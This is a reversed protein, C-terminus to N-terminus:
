NWFDPEGTQGGRLRCDTCLPTSGFWNGFEDPMTPIYGLSGFYTAVSDGPVFVSSCIWEYEWNPVHRELIFIRKESTTSAGLYGVVPESTTECYINGHLQGPLPDTFGGVESTNKQMLQLYEFELKTLARQKVLVSYRESLKEDSVPILILPRMVIKDDVFATTSEFILGAPYQYKWCRYMDMAEQLPRPQVRNDSYFYYTPYGSTIQWVEEYDWQYFRTNNDIDHTNVYITVGDNIRRWSVSDIAPTNQPQVFESYYQKENKTKISIRFRRGAPLSLPQSEYTGEHTQTLPFSNFEEDQIAVSAGTETIQIATGTVPTTRSLRITTVTSTGINIYGEVVLFGTEAGSIEPDFPDKCGIYMLLSVVLALALINKDKARM